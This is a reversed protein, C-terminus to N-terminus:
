RRALRGSPDVELARRLLALADRHMHGRMYRDAQAYLRYAEFSPTAVLTM